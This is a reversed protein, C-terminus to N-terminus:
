SGPARDVMGRGGRGEGREHGRGEGPGVHDESTLNHSGRDQEHGHQGTVNPSASHNDIGRVIKKAKEVVEKPVGSMNVITANDPVRVRMSERERETIREMAKYSERIKAEVKVMLDMAEDTKNQSLLLTVRKMLREAERLHEMVPTVNVTSNARMVTSMVKSLMMQTRNLQGIVTSNIANMSNEDVGCRYLAQYANGVMNIARLVLSEAQRYNGVNMSTQASEILSDAKSLTENIMQLANSCEPNTSNVASATGLLDEKAQNYVGILTQVVDQSTAAVPIVVALIGILLAAALKNSAPIGLSM